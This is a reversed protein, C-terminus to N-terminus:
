LNDYAADEENNWIADFSKRSLHQMGEALLGKEHRLEPFRIFDLVASLASDPLKEVEQKIIYKLTM